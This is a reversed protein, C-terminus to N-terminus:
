VRGSFSNNCYALKAEEDRKSSLFRVWANREHWVVGLEWVCYTPKLDSDYKWPRYSATEGAERVYSSLWMENTNRWITVLLLLGPGARHLVVFGLDDELSLRGAEEEEKLFARSESVEEQSIEKDPPYLDYWKLYANTLSLGERATVVKEYYEYGDPVVNGLSGLQPVKEFVSDSVRM